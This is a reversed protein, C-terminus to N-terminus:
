RQAAFTGTFTATAIIHGEITGLLAAKTMGQRPGIAEDLAYLSFVYHHTGTGAPPCPGGWGLTGFDNKGQRCAGPVEDLPPIGEVLGESRPPIDWVLWHLWGGGPADPDDCLLALSKAGQPVDHFALDPSRNGSKFHSKAPMAGNDYFSRSTITM